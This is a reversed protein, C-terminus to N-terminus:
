FRSYTAGLSQLRAIRDYSSPHTSYLAKLLGGQPIQCLQNDLVRALENGYGIKYAFEDAVYENQRMSWM